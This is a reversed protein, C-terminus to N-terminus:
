ATVAASGRLRARDDVDVAARETLVLALVAERDALPAAGLDGHALREIDHALVGGATAHGHPRALRELGGLHGDGADDEVAIPPLDVAHLQAVARPRHATAHGSGRRGPAVAPQEDLEVLRNHAHSGPLLSAEHAAVAHNSKRRDGRRGAVSECGAWLHLEGMGASRISSVVGMPRSQSATIRMSSPPM